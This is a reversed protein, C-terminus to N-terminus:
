QIIFSSGIQWYGIGSGFPIVIKSFVSGLADLGTNLEIARLKFFIKQGARPASFLALFGNYVNYSNITSNPILGIIKFNMKNYYKGQSIGPSAYVIHIVNAASTQGIFSMYMFPEHEILDGSIVNQLTPVDVPQPATFIYDENILHLNQNLRCFLNFGSAKYSDGWYNHLTITAALDNWSKREAESLMKWKRSLFSISARHHSQSGSQQNIPTQKNKIIAGARNKTFVSGNLKGWIGTLLGSYKILGM